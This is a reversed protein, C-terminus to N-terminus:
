RSGKKLDKMIRLIRKRRPVQNQILFLAIALRLVSGKEQLDEENSTSELKEPEKAVIMTKGKNQVNFSDVIVDKKKEVVKVKEKWVKTPKPNPKVENSKNLSCVKLSHGFTKSDVCNVQM